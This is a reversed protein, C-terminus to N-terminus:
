EKFLNLRNLLKFFPLGIIVCAIFEGLAVTSANFMFSGFHFPGEILFIELELGIIVANFLVPMLSSLLPLSWLRIDKLKYAFIGALLTATTGLIIDLPLVGVTLLNSIFCGLTVGWVASVSFVCLMCLVEALRVQIAMSTCGPILLEQTYNLVIYLAAIIAGQCLHLIKKNNM